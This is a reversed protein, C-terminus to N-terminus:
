LVKNKEEEKRKRKITLQLHHGQGFSFVNAVLNPLIFLGWLGLFSLLIIIPTNISNVIRSDPSTFNLQIIFNVSFSLLFASLQLLIAFAFIGSLKQFVTTKKGEKKKTMSEVLETNGFGIILAYGGLNFGLLNPFISLIQSSWLGLVEFTNKKSLLSIIFLAVSLFISLQFPRSTKIEKWDYSYFIGKYSTPHDKNIQEIEQKTM